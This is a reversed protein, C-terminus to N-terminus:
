YKSIGFNNENERIIMFEILLSQSFCNFGLMSKLARLYDHCQLLYSLYIYFISEIFLHLLPSKKLSIFNNQTISYHHISTVICENVDMSYVVDLTVGLAFQPSQTIIIHQHQNVSKCFHVVRSTSASPLLPQPFPPLPYISVERYKINSKVTFSCSFRCTSQFHLRILLLLFVTEAM